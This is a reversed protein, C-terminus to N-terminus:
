HFGVHTRAAVAPRRQVTFARYEVGKEVLQPRATGPVQHRVLQRGPARHILLNRGPPLVAGPILQESSQAAVHTVEAAVGAPTPLISVTPEEVAISNDLPRGLLYNFQTRALQRRNAATALDRQNGALQAKTTYVADYTSIGEHLRTENVRLLEALTQASTHYVAVAAGAQLYQYYAVEIQHRLTNHYAAQRAQQM